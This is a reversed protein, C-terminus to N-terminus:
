PAAAFALARLAAAVETRADLREVSVARLRPWPRVAMQLTQGSGLSIGRVRAGAAKAAAAVVPDVAPMDVSASDARVTDADARDYVRTAWLQHL